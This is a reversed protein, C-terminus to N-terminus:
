FLSGYYTEASIASCGYFGEMHILLLGVNADQINNRVETIVIYDESHIQVSWQESLM